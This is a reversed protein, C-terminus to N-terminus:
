FIKNELVIIRKELNKIIEDKKLELNELEKIKKEDETLNEMGYYWYYTGSIGNYLLKPVTYTVEVAEYLLYGLM